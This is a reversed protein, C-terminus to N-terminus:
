RGEGARFMASIVNLFVFMPYVTIATSAPNISLFMLEITLWVIALFWHVPKAMRYNRILLAYLGALGPVIFVAGWVEESAVSSMLHYSGSTSFTQMLIMHSGWLIPSIFCMFRVLVSYRVFKSLRM